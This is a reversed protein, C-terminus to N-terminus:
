IEISYPLSKIYNEMFKFDPTNNIYPLRITESPLRKLRVQRGYGYKSFIRKLSTIIFLNIYKNDYYKNFEKKKFFLTHINDDSFYKFSQYFVNGFMDITIKNENLKKKSKFTDYDLFSTIGNNISSATILPISIEGNKRSAKVLREGKEIKFLDDIIIEKWEKKNLKKIAKPTFYKKNYVIDSAQFNIYKRMYGWDPYYKGEKKLSPLEIKEKKLREDSMERAFGYKTKMSEIIPKIFLFLYLDLVIEENKIKLITCHDSAVFNYNHYFCYGISGSNNLTMANRYITMYEPPSIYNDIGNQNKSSSIYAIEGGIQNQTILRRGRKFWFIDAFSFEKWKSKDIKM